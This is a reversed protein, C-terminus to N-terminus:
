CCLRELKAACRLRARSGDIVAILDNPAAGARHAWMTELEEQKM